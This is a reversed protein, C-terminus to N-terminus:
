GRLNLLVIGAAVLAAAMVRHRGFPERLFVAGILAAVIVSSERLAAVPAIAGLTFAWLVMVYTVGAALACISARLFHAKLLPVLQRRRWILYYIAYPIGQLTFSWLAYSIPAGSIRVGVADVVTYSAVLLGAFIALAIPRTTGKRLVGGSLALSFIGACILAVGLSSWLGLSEGVFVVSLVAAGLPGTGRIIPYGVSLDGTNLTKALLLVYFVQLTGAAALYPWSERNPLPLFLATALAVVGGIAVLLLTVNFPDRSAKVVANWTAHLVAALLM